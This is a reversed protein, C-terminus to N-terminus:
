GKVAWNPCQRRGSEETGRTSQGVPKSGRRRARGASSPWGRHCTGRRSFVDDVALARFMLGNSLQDHVFDLSWAESPRRAPLAGIVSGGDQRRRSRKSRLALGEERFLWYVVNVASAAM